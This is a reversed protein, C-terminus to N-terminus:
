DSATIRRVTKQCVNYFVLSAEWNKTGLHDSHSLLAHLVFAHFLGVALCNRCDPSM